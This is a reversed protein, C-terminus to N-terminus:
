HKSILPMYLQYLWVSTIDIDSNNGLEPDDGNTGDDALSATNTLV